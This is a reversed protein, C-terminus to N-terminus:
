ENDFLTNTPVSVGSIAASLEGLVQNVQEPEKHDLINGITDRLQGMIDVLVAAQEARRMERASAPRIAVLEGRDLAADIEERSIWRGDPEVCFSGLWGLSRTHLERGFYVVQM